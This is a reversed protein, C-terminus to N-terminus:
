NKVKDSFINNVARIKFMFILYVVSGVLTYIFIIFLNVLRNVSVIPVIFKMMFLVIVMLMCGCLIDLFEKLTDEYDVKYKGHLAILCIVFPVFYAVLSSTIVGYYAPLGLKYFTVMLSTNLIVKLMLGIALSVFIIKYEKLIKLIYIGAFFLGMFLGVFVLYSLISPGYLSKGYFLMWIPEALFSLGITIPVMVFLLVSLSQSIIKNAYKKNKKVVSNILNPAVGKITESSIFIFIVLFQFGWITLNGIITEAELVSCGTVEVLTKIVTFLDVFGYLYKFIDILVFPVAYVFLKKLIMKNTIIPENVNRIKEDFKKKNKVKKGILYLYAIVVGIFTGFLSVGIVSPLTIKFVRLAFYSGFVVIFINVICEIEKSLSSFFTYRHGEFYGRYVYLVPSILLAISIIRIVFVIDTINNGGVLDGLIGKAFLPALLLLFLYLIVGLILSFRKGLFLVRQKVNHYGLTQYESVINSIAFPIGATAVAAFLGYIITAYAYLAGGRDGVIAYFPIVYFFGLIRSLVIIFTTGFSSMVFSNRKMVKDKM